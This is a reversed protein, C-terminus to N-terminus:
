RRRRAMAPIRCRAGARLNGSEDTEVLNASSAFPPRCLKRLFACRRAVPGKRTRASVPHGTTDGERDGHQRKEAECGRRTIGTRDPRFGPVHGLGLGLSTGVLLCGCVERSRGLTRSLRVLPLLTSWSRSTSSGVADQATTPAAIMMASAPPRNQIATFCASLAPPAEGAAASPSAMLLAARWRM